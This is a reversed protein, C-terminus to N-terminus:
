ATRVDTYTIVPDGKGGNYAEEYVSGCKGMDCRQARVATGNCTSEVEREVRNDDRCQRKAVREASGCTM